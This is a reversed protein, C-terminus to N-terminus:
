FLGDYTRLIVDQQSVPVISEVKIGNKTLKTKLEDALASADESKPLSVNVHPEASLHRVRITENFGNMVSSVIVWAAIGVGVAVIAIRAILRVVSGSRRSMLYRVFF